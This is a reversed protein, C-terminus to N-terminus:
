ETPRSHRKWANKARYLRRKVARKLNRPEDAQIAAQFTSIARQPFHQNWEALTKRGNAELERRLSFKATDLVSAIRLHESSSLRGTPGIKAESMLKGAIEDFRNLPPIREECQGIHLGAPSFWWRLENREAVRDFCDGPSGHFTVGRALRIESLKSSLSAIPIPRSAQRAVEKVISVDSSQAPVTHNVFNDIIMERYLKKGSARHTEEASFYFWKKKVKWSLPRCLEIQM